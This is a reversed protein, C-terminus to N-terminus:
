QRMAFGYLNNADLLLMWSITKNPDFSDIMPNNATLIPNRGYAAGGKM